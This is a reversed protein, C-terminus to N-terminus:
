EFKLQREVSDIKNRVHDLTIPINGDLECECSAAMCGLVTAIADNGCSLMALTSYALLADGAGVADV